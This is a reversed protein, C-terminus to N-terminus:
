RSSRLAHARERAVQVAADAEAVAAETAEATDFIRDRIRKWAAFDDTGFAAAAADAVAVLEEHAERAAKLAEALVDRAQEELTEAAEILLDHTTPTDAYSLTNAVPTPVYGAVCAPCDASGGTAPEHNHIVIKM